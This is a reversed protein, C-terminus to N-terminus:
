STFYTNPNGSLYHIIPKVPDGDMRDSNAILDGINNVPISSRTGPPSPVTALLVPQENQAM